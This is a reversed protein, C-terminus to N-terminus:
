SIRYLEHWTCYMNNSIQRDAHLGGFFWNSFRTNHLVTDLFLNLDNIYANRNVLRKVSAPAEHTIILDVDRHYRNLNDVAHQYEDDSPLSKSDMFSDDLPETDTGGGLAFIRKNEIEFVEGRKLCYINRDIKYGRGKFLDVEKCNYIMDFNEHAGEVFLIDFNKKALKQLAKQEEKTNNWLFGFDGCIILKDGKKLRGIKRSQFDELDGHTDGTIYIM